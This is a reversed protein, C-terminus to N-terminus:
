FFIDGKEKFFIDSRESVTLASEAFKTFTSMPHIILNKSSLFLDDKNFFITIIIWCPQSVCLIAEPYPVILLWLPFTIFMFLKESKFSKRPLLYYTLKILYM